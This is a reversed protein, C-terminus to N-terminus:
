RVTYQWTFQLNLSAQTLAAQLDLPRAAMLRQQAHRTATVGSMCLLAPDGGAAACRGQCM